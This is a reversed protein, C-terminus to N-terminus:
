QPWRFVRWLNCRVSGEAFLLEHDNGLYNGENKRQSWGGTFGVFVLNQYQFDFGASFDWRRDVIGSPFPVEFPVGSAQVDEINQEGRRRREAAIHLDLWNAAHYKIQYTARDADPGYRSGIPIVQGDLDRHFYYRNHPKKQGYVTTNVRSYELTHFSRRFGFPAAAHLGVLIGLQHPESEFDIQFDDILWEGYLEWGRAPIVSWELSWLPNDDKDENLQEWYYPVVPNLYYWELPRNVGGFVVVETAALELFDFPRVDIRHGALYRRASEGDLVLNDLTAIFYMLDFAGKRYRVRGYDFPPAYGSMLLGDEASRGFKLWGRGMFMEFNGTRFKFSADDFNATLNDKWKEGRFRTDHRADSELRVRSRAVWRGSRGVAAFAYGGGRNLGDRNEEQTTLAYPQIGARLVLEEGAPRHFEDIDSHFEHWLRQFLVLQGPDLHTTDPALGHLYEAVQQRTYPVTHVNWREGEGGATLEGIAGYIWSDIPIDEDVSAFAPTVVNMLLFLLGLIRLTKVMRAFM